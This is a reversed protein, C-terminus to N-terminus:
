FILNYLIEVRYPEKLIYLIGLVIIALCFISIYLIKNNTINKSNVSVSYIFVRYDRYFNNTHMVKFKFRRLQVCKNDVMNDITDLM